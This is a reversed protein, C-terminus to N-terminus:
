CDVLIPALRGVKAVDASREGGSQEAVHRRGVERDMPIMAPGFPRRKLVDTVQNQVIVANVPEIHQRQDHRAM